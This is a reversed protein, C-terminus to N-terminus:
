KKFEYIKYGGHGDPLIAHFDVRITFLCFYLILFLIIIFMIRIKRNDVFQIRKIPLFKVLAANLYLVVGTIMSIHGSHEKPFNIFIKKRKNKKIQVVSICNVNSPNLRTDKLVYAMTFIGMIFGIFISSICPILDKVFVVRTYGYHNVLWTLM